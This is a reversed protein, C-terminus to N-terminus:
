RGELESLVERRAREVLASSTKRTKTKPNCTRPSAVKRNRAKSVFDQLDAETVDYDSTLRYHKLRPAPGQCARWLSWYSIRHERAALWLVAEPLTM